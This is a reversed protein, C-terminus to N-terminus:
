HIRYYKRSYPYFRFLGKNSFCSNVFSLHEKKSTREIDIPKTEALHKLISLAYYTALINPVLLKSEFFCYGGKYYFNSLSNLISSFIEDTVKYDTNKIIESRVSNYLRVMCKQVRKSHITWEKPIKAELERSDFIHLNKQLDIYQVTARLTENENLISPKCKIVNNEINCIKSSFLRNNELLKEVQESNLHYLIWNASGTSFIDSNKENFSNTYGGDNKNICRIVFSEIKKSANPDQLYNNILKNLEKRDWKNDSYGRLLRFLRIASRTGQISPYNDDFKDRFGGLKRDYLMFLSKKMEEVIKKYKKDNVIDENFLSYIGTATATAFLSPKYWHRIQLDIEQECKKRYRIIEPPIQVYLNYSPDIYSLTLKTFQKIHSKM